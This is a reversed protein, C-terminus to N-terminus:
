SSNSMRKLLIKLLLTVNKLSIRSSQFTSNVNSILHWFLAKRFICPFHKENMSIPFVAHFFISWFVFFFYKVLSDQPQPTISSNQTLETQHNSYTASPPGPTSYIVQSGSGRCMMEEQPQLTTDSHGPHASVWCCRQPRKSMGAEPFSGNKATLCPCSGEKGKHCTHCNPNNRGPEDEKQLQKRFEQCHQLLLASLGWHLEGATSVEPKTCGWAGLAAKLASCCDPQKNTHACLFELFGLQVEPPHLSDSKETSLLAAGQKGLAERQERFTYSNGRGAGGPCCLSVWAAKTPERPAMRVPVGPTDSHLETCVKGGAPINRHEPCLGPCGPEPM